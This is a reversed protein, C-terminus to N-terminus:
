FSLINNKGLLMKRIELANKYFKKGKTLQNM